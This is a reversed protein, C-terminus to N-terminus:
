IDTSLTSSQWRNCLLVPFIYLETNFVTNIEIGNGKHLIGFNNMFKLVVKFTSVFIYM